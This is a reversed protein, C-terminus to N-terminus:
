VHPWWPVRGACPSRHERCNVTVCRQGTVPNYVVRCGCQFDLALRGQMPWRGPVLDFHNLSMSLGQIGLDILSM